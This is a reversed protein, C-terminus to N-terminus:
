FGNALSGLIIQVFGTLNVLNALDVGTDMLIHSSNGKGGSKNKELRPFYVPPLM